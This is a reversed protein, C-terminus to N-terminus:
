TGHKGGGVSFDSINSYIRWQGSGPIEKKHNMWRSIILTKRNQEVNQTLNQERQKGKQIYQMLKAEQQSMQRENSSPLKSFDIHHIIDCKM